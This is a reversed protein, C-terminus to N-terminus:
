GNTRRELFRKFKSIKNEEYEINYKKLYAIFESIDNDQHDDLEFEIEYDKEKNPYTTYDLCLQGNKIKKTYRSCITSGLLKASKFGYHILLKEINPDKLDSVLCEKEILDEGDRTKFCLIYLDEFNRIRMVSNPSNLDYYYNEFVELKLEDDNEIIKDIQKKSLLMKYEKEIKINM